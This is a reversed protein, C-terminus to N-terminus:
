KAKKSEESVNIKKTRRDRLLRMGVVCVDDFHESTDNVTDLLIKFEDQQELFEFDPGQFAEKILQLERGASLKM